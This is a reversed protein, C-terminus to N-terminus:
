AQQAESPKPDPTGLLSRLADAQKPTLRVCLPGVVIEIHGSEHLTVSVKASARFYVFTASSRYTMYLSM